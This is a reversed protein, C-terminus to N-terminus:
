SDFGTFSDCGDTVKLGSRDTSQGGYQHSTVFYKIQPAFHAHLFPAEM